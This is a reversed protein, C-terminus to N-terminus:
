HTSLLEDLRRTMSCGYFMRSQAPDDETAEPQGHAGPGGEALVALADALTRDRELTAHQCILAARPSSHGMRAMLERTSAGTSAALTNGTHRLDHFRFGVLAVSGCASQWVRRNFNSRRLPSGDPSTFVRSTPNAAVFRQLHRELDPVIHPPLAITRHGADSKPPGVVHSGDKLEQLQRDVRVTQDDLDVDRRELGAAEGFRLGAWVALLVMARYRDDIADALAAVMAVSVVPREAAREAGAGRLVCPNRTLLEDEFATALISRLLRYAKAATSRSVGGQLLRAYWTRVRASTIQKLSLEGLGPLLQVRLLYEYLEITRPRLTPKLALWEAAYDGLRVAGAEPDIWSGELHAARETTQYAEAEKRTRFTRAYQRGDPARLKVDYSTRGSRLRRPHISM